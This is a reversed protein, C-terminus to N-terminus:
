RRLCRRSRCRAGTPYAPLVPVRADGVRRRGFPACGGHADHLADPQDEAGLGVLREVAGLVRALGEVVAVLLLQLQQLLYAAADGVHRGAALPELQLHLLQLLLRVLQVVLRLLREACPRSSRARSASVRLAAQLLLDGVQLGLVRLQLRSSSFSM